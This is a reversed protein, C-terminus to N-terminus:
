SMVNELNLLTSNDMQAPIEKLKKCRKPEQDTTVITDTGPYNKNGM